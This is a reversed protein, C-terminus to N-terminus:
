LRTVRTARKQRASSAFLRLLSAHFTASFRGVRAGPDFVHSEELIDHNYEDFVIWLPKDDLGARRREIEPVEIPLRAPDPSSGTIPLLFLNTRGRREILVAVVTVPRPKRGATEGRRDQWRWLYDYRWVDGARPEAM